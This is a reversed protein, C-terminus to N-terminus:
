SIDQFHESFYRFAMDKKDDLPNLEFKFINFVILIHKVFIKFFILFFLRLHFYNSRFITMFHGSFYM